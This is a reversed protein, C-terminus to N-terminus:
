DRDEFRATLWYAGRAGLAGGVLALAGVGAGLAWWSRGPVGALLGYAVSIVTLFLFALTGGAFAGAWAGVVAAGRRVDEDEPDGAPDLGWATWETM